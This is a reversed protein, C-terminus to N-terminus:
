TEHAISRVELVTLSKLDSLLDAAQLGDLDAHDLSLVCLNIHRILSSVPRSSYHSMFYSFSEDLSLSKYHHRSCRNGTSSVAAALSETMYRLYRWLQACWVLGVEQLNNVLAASTCQSSSSNTRCVPQRPQQQGWTMGIRGRPVWLRLLKLESHQQLLWCGCDDLTKLATAAASISQLPGSILRGFGTDDAHAAAAVASYCATVRGGYSESLQWPRWIDPFDDVFLVELHKLRMMANVISAACTVRALQLKRYYVTDSESAYLADVEDDGHDLNDSFDPWDFLDNYEGDDDSDQGACSAWDLEECPVVLQLRRLAPFAQTIHWLGTSFVSWRSTETDELRQLGWHAELQLLELQWGGTAATMAALRQLDSVLNSVAVGRITLHQLSALLHQLPQLTALGAKAASTPWWVHATINHRNSDAALLHLEAVKTVRQSLLQMTLDFVEASVEGAIYIHLTTIHQLHHTARYWRQLQDRSSSDCLRLTIYPVHETVRKCLAQSVLRLNAYGHTDLTDLLAQSLLPSCGHIQQALFLSTLKM